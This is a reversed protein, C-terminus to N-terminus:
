SKAHDLCRECVGVKLYIGFDRAYAGMARIFAWGWVRVRPEYLRGGFNQVRIFAWGGSKGISWKLPGHTNIRSFETTHVITCMGEFYSNTKM